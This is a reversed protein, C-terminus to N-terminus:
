PSYDKGVTKWMNQGNILMLTEYMEFSEEVPWTEGERKIWLSNRQSPFLLHASASARVSKTIRQM